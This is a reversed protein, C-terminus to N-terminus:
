KDPVVLGREHAENMIAMEIMAVSGMVTPLLVTNEHALANALDLFKLKNHIKVLLMTDQRNYELFKQWDKNYLQDLTGEYQTKNEGVEMEGIFDLKYSHRSEYNYKKYLQFYEM